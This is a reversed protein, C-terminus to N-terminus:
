SETASKGDGMGYIRRCLRHGATITSGDSCSIQTSSLFPIPSLPPGQPLGAQGFESPESTWGNVVITATRQSCLRQDFGSPRLFAGLRWDSHFDTRACGTRFRMKQTSCLNITASRDVSIRIGEVTKHSDVNGEREIRRRLM